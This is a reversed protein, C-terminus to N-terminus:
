YPRDRLRWAYLVRSLVVEGIFFMVVCIAIDTMKIALFLISALLTFLSEPM